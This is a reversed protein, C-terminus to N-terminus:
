YDRISIYCFTKIFHILHKLISISENQSNRLLNRVLIIKNIIQIKIYFMMYVSVELSLM